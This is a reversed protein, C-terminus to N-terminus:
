HQENRPSAVTGDHCLWLSLNHLWMIIWHLWLFCGVRVASSCVTELMQQRDRGEQMLRQWWLPLISFIRDSVMMEILDESLKDCWAIGAAVRFRRSVRVWDTGVRRQQTILAVRIERVLSDRQPTENVSENRNQYQLKESWTFNRGRKGGLPPLSFSGPLKQSQWVPALSISTSTKM